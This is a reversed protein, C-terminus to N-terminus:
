FSLAIFFDVSKKKFTTKEKTLSPLLLTELPLSVLGSLTKEAKAEAGAETGAEAGAETGAGAAAAAAAVAAFFLLWRRQLRVSRHGFRDHESFFLLGFGWSKKAKTEAGAETGAGAAAAAAAM